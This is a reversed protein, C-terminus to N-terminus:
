LSAFLSGLGEPDDTFLASVGIEALHEALGGPRADNVTYVLVPIGRARLESVDEGRLLHPSPDRRYPVSESGLSEASVHYTSAGLTRALYDAPQFLPTWALAGLPIAVMRPGRTAMERRLRALDRHDFGSLLVRDATDTAEVEELVAEVLGPPCEPFSKLEVNVLWDLDRTLALAERLSPIRIRGSEYSARQAPTLRELTGFAAASRPRDGEVFWSGADLSRLESWDFDSVRYGTSRRPDRAFRLSM